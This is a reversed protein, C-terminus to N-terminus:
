ARVCVSVSMCVCIENFRTRGFDGVVLVLTFMRCM